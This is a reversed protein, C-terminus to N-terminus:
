APMWTVQTFSIHRVAQVLQEIEHTETFFGPSVRVTGSPHTGITRHALPACHLGARVQIGYNHQLVAAVDEAEWGEINFSLIAVRPQHPQPGYLRVNPLRALGNWLMGILEEGRRAVRELGQEEIFSLGKGLSIIGPMNFTGAELAEPWYDPQLESQSNYGTGGQRLPRLTEVRPGIVLLGTGPLGLLGKHGACAIMDAQLAELDVPVIGATQAADVLLYAGRRRALRGIDAVPQLAGTVNSAHSIVVLRTKPTFAEALKEQNIYGAEDCPVVTLSIVGEKELHRLPRVVSNHEMGSIIVHDGRNVFGKIALNLADTASYTFILREAEKSGFFRALKKRIEWVDRDAQRAAGYRGRGPSGCGTELWQRVAEKVTEPKPFSTAANDLYIM